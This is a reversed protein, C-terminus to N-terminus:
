NTVRNFSNLKSPNWNARNAQSYVEADYKFYNYARAYPPPMIAILSPQQIRINNVKLKVHSVHLNARILVCHHVSVQFLAVEACSFDHLLSM